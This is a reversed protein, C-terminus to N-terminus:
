GQRMPKSIKIMQMDRVLSCEQRTEHNYSSKKQTCINKQSLTYICETAFVSSEGTARVQCPNSNKINVTSRRKDSDIPVPCRESLRAGFAIWATYAGSMKATDNYVKPKESSLRQNEQAAATTLYSLM